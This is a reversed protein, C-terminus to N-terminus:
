KSEQRNKKKKKKQFQFSNYSISGPLRAFLPPLLRQHGKVRPVRVWWRWTCESSVSGQETGDEPLSPPHGCCRHDHPSPLLKFTVGLFPFKFHLLHQLLFGTSSLGCPSVPATWSAMGLCTARYSSKLYDAQTCAGPLSLRGREM